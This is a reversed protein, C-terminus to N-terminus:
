DENIHAKEKEPSEKEPHYFDPIMFLPIHTHFSMERTVSKVRSFIKEIFFPKEPSMVLWDAKEQMCFDNLGEIITNYHVLRLNLKSYAIKSKVEASFTEFVKLEFEKFAVNNSIHLVTLSANFQEAIKVLFHIGPIEGERYATAFVINKIGTFLADKPIALVPVQSKEMVDWTHSGLFFNRFGNMGHTGIVVFDTESETAEKRVQKGVHGERIICECNMESNKINLSHFIEDRRQELRQHEHKRLEEAAKAYEKPQSPANFPIDYVHLITLASNTNKAFQVAYREANMVAESYDTALLIKYQKNM